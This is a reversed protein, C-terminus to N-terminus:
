YTILFIDTNVGVFSCCSDAKREQKKLKRWNIDATATMIATMTEKYHHSGERLKLRLESKRRYYHRHTLSSESFDLALQTYSQTIIKPQLGRGGSM